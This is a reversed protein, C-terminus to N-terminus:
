VIVSGHHSLLRNPGQVYGLFSGTTTFLGIEGFGDSVYVTQGSVAIDQAGLLDIRGIKQEADRAIADLEPLTM